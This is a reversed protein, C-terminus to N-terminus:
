RAHKARLKETLYRKRNASLDGKGSAFGGVLGYERAREYLSRNDGSPVSLRKMLLETIVHSKTVGHKKCYRELRSQLEPELRVTLTM